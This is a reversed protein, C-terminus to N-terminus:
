GDEKEASLVDDIVKGAAEVDSRGIANQAEQLAGELARVRTVASRLQETRVKILIEANELVTLEKREAM